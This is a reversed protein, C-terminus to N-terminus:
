MMKRKRILFFDSMKFIIILYFLLLFLPCSLIILLFFLPFPLFVLVCCIYISFCLHECVSFYWLFASASVTIYICFVHLACGEDEGDSGGGSSGGEDNDNDVDNENDKDDDDDDDDDDNKIGHCLVRLCLIGFHRPM